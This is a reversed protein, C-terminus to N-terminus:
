EISKQILEKADAALNEPVFIEVEALPGISVPLQPIERRLIKVPIGYSRLLSPVVMDQPPYLKAISIWSVSDPYSGGPYNDPNYKPTIRRNYLM